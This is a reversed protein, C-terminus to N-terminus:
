NGHRHHQQGVMTLDTHGSEWSESAAVTTTVSDPCEVGRLTMCGHKATIICAAGEPDLVESIAAVVQAGIQEQVQLRRAYGELVRTLKSLGVVPHDPRPRYAVTAHGTIPLLHHACTSSVEVGSVVVLGPRAPASFTKHLHVRPDEHYGALMHRWAKAVRQPTDRTHDGEDVGLAALMDRVAEAVPNDNEADRIHTVTM